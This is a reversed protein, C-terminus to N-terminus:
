ASSSEGLAQQDFRAVFCICNECRDLAGRLTGCPTLHTFVLSGQNSRRAIMEVLDLLAVIHTGDAFSRKGEILGRAMKRFQHHFGGHGAGNAALGHFGSSFFQAIFDAGRM